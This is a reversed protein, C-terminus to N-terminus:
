KRIQINPGDKSIIRNIPTKFPDQIPTSQIFKDQQQQHHKQKGIKEPILQPQLQFSSNIGTSNNKGFSFHNSAFPDNNAASAFNNNNSTFQRNPTDFITSGINSPSTPFTEKFFNDGLSDGLLDM